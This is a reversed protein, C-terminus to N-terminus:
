ASSVAVQTLLIITKIFTGRDQRSLAISGAHRNTSFGEQMLLSPSGIGHCDKVEGLFYQGQGPYKEYDRHGLM